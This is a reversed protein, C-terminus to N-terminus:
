TNQTKAQLLFHKQEFALVLSQSTGGAGGESCGVGGGGGRWGEGVLRVIV